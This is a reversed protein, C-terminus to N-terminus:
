SRICAGAHKRRSRTTAHVGVSLRSTQTCSNRGGVGARCDRCACVRVSPGLRRCCGTLRSRLLLWKCHLGTISRLTGAIAVPVLALLLPGRARGAVVVAEQAILRPHPDMTAQCYLESRHQFYQSEVAAAATRRILQEVCCCKKLLVDAPTSGWLQRGARARICRPYEVLTLM